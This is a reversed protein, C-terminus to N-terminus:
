DYVLGVNEDYPGAYGGLGSDYYPLALVETVGVDWEPDSVPAEGLRLYAFEQVSPLQRVEESDCRLSIERGADGSVALEIPILHTEGDGHHPKVVLHTVRQEIPDIIVDALEGVEERDASRVTKGLELRM